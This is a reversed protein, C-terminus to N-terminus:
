RELPTAARVSRLLTAAGNMAAFRGRRACWTVYRRLFSAVLFRELADTVEPHLQPPTETQRATPARPVTQRFPDFGVSVNPPVVGDADICAREYRRAIAERTARYRARVWKGTVPDHFRFSHLRDTM